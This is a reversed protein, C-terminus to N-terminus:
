GERKAGFFHYGLFGLALSFCMIALSHIGVPQTGGVVALGLGLAALIYFWKLDSKMGKGPSFDMLSAIAEQSVGKELVQRRLKNALIIRVIYVIFVMFLTVIVITASTRYVESTFEMEHRVKERELDSDVPVGTVSGTVQSTSVTAATDSGPKAQATGFLAPLLLLLCFILKKM